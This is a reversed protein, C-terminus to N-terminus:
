RSSHRLYQDVKRQEWEPGFIRGGFVTVGHALIVAGWPVAVWQVWWGGGAIADVLALGAITIVFVAVHQYWGRLDEARKHARVVSPDEQHSPQETAQTM